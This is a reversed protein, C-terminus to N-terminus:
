NMIDNRRMGTEVVVLASRAPEMLTVVTRRPLEPHAVASDPSIYRNPWFSSHWRPDLIHRITEAHKGTAHSGHQADFCFRVRQPGGSTESASSRCHLLIRGWRVPSQTPLSSLNPNGGQNIVGARFCTDDGLKVQAPVLQTNDTTM